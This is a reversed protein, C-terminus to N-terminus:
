EPTAKELVQERSIEQDHIQRRHVQMAEVVQDQEGRAAWGCECTVVVAV